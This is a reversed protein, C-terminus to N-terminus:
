ASISQIEFEWNDESIKGDSEFRTYVRYDGSSDAVVNMNNFGEFVQNGLNDKGTDLKLLGQAPISIQKNVVIKVDQWLNNVDKKQLILKLTYTVAYFCKYFIYVRLKYM